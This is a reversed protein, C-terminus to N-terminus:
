PRMRRVIAYSAVAVVVATEVRTPCPVFPALRCAGANAAKALEDRLSANLGEVRALRFRSLSDAIQFRAAATRASDTALREKALAADLSDAARTEDVYADRWYRASDRATASEAAKRAADGALREITRASAESAKSETTLRTSAVYVTEARAVAAAHAISDPRRSTEIAITSDRVAPSEGRYRTEHQYVVSAGVALVAVIALEIAVRTPAVM